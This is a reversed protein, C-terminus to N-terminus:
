GILVLMYMDYKIKSVGLTAKAILVVYGHQVHELIIQIMSYHELHLTTHTRRLQTHFLVRYVM